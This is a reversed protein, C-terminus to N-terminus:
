QLCRPPLRVINFWFEEIAGMTRSFQEFTSPKNVYCNGGSGYTMLVDSESRSSTMIVVVITRLLPDNKVECLVEHGSIGPLHLDLFMLDPRPASSFPPARRLFRLAEEGSSAVHLTVRSEPRSALGEKILAVQDSDDDVLLVEISPEAMRAPYRM